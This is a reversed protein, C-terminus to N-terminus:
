QQASRWVADLLQELKKPSFFLHGHHTSSLFETPGLIKMVEESAKWNPPVEAPSGSPARPSPRTYGARLIADALMEWLAGTLAHERFTLESADYAARLTEALTEREPADTM